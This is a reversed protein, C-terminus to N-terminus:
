VPMTKFTFGSVTSTAVVEVIYGVSPAAGNDRCGSFSPM